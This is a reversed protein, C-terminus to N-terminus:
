IPLFVVQSDWEADASNEVIFVLDNIVPAVAM